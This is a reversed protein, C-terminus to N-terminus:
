GRPKGLLTVPSAAPERHQDGSVRSDNVSAPTPAMVAAGWEAGLGHCSSRVSPPCQEREAKGSRRTGNDLAVEAGCARATSSRRHALPGGTDHRVSVRSRHRLWGRPPPGSRTSGRMAVRGREMATPARDSRRPWCATSCRAPARRQVYKDVVDIILDKKSWQTPHYLGLATNLLVDGTYVAGFVTNVAKQGRLGKLAAIGYAAGWMMGLSFHTVYNLRRRGEHTKTDM